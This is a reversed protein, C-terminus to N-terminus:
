GEAAPALCERFAKAMERLLTFYLEPGPEIGAGLPELTGSRVSTGEVITSVLRQDFHPEDFVCVVSLERVKERLERVRKVGPSREPSVVTSGAASLGFRDEFYRYGDHFVIFPVGRAPLVLAEIEESLHELEHYLHHANDAYRAANSPDAESLVRAITRTMAKANVPDLWIHLDFPGTEDASGDVDVDHHHGDVDHGHDGHGHHGDDDDGHGEDHGNGEDEGGEADDHDDHDDHGHDDDDHDENAHHHDVEFAGGKRLPRRVLGAAETLEVVRANDALTDIQAALASEMANDVLFVVHADELAVADSPRMTYTHPSAAGRMILHPEGIGEMVVSVLSHVPKISAVVRIATDAAASDAVGWHLFGAVALGLCSSRALKFRQKM